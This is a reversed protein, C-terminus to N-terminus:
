LRMFPAIGDLRLLTCDPNAVVKTMTDQATRRFKQKFKVWSSVFMARRHLPTFQRNEVREEDRMQGESQGCLLSWGGSCM